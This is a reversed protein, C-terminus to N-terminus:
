QSFLFESGPQGESMQESSQWTVRRPLAPALWNNALFFKRSLLDM